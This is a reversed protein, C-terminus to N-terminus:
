SKTAELIYFPHTIVDTRLGLVAYNFSKWYDRLGSEWGPPSLRNLNGDPKRTAYEGAPYRCTIFYTHVYNSTNQFPLVELIRREGLLMSVFAVM